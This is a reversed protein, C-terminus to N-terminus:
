VCARGSNQSTTSPCGASRRVFGVGVAVAVNGPRYPPTVAASLLHATVSLPRSPRSASPRSVVLADVGDMPRALWALNGAFREAPPLGLSFHTRADHTRFYLALLLSSSPASWVLSRAPAAQPTGQYLWAPAGRLGAGNEVSGRLRAAACGALLFALLCRACADGCARLAGRMRM